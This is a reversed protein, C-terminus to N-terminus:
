KGETQLTFKLIEELAPRGTIFGGLKQIDTFSHIEGKNKVPIKV